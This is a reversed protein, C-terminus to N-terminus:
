EIRVPIRDIENFASSNWKLRPDDWLIFLYFSTTIIQTKENVDILQKLALQLEIETQSTPRVSKEYGKTLDLFTKIKVEWSPDPAESKSLLAQSLFLTIVIFTLIQM